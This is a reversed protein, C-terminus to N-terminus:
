CAPQLELIRIAGATELKNYEYDNQSRHMMRPQGQGNGINTQASLNPMKM